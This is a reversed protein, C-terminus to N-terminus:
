KGPRYSANDGNFFYMKVTDEDNWNHHWSSAKAACFSRKVLVNLVEVDNCYLLVHRVGFTRKMSLTWIKVTETPLETVFETEYSCDLLEYKPPSALTIKLGGTIGGSSSYTRMKMM